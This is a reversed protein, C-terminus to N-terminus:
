ILLQKSKTKKRQNRKHRQQEELKREKWEFVKKNPKWGRKRHLVMNGESDLSYSIKSLTNYGCKTCLKVKNSTTDPYKAWCAYCEQIFRRVSKIQVGEVSRLGIGM